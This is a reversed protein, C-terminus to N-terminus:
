DTPVDHLVRPTVFILLETDNLSKARSAFLKGIFPIRSLLPTRLKTSSDDKTVLGGIVATEGDQVRLMTMVTQYTMIPARSGDPAEVWGTVNSIQPTLWLSVSDDANVRPQVELYNEVDVPEMEFEVQRQGFQNYTVSATYVPIETGFEVYAYGNNQVAVRPEQIVTARSSKELANLQADLNGTAFRVVSNIAQPPAFGQNFIEIRTNKIAWDIGFAEEFTTTISIFKVAIEVQKVPKDLLAVIERFEDIAEATGRVILSNDDM